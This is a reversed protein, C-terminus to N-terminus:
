TRSERRERSPAKEKTKAYAQAGFFCATLGSGAVFYTPAVDSLLNAANDLGLVDCLVIGSPYLLMGWLSFWAMKRIQDEKKDSNQIQLIQEARELEEDTITGDNNLDLDKYISDKQFLKNM